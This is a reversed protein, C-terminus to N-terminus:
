WRMRGRRSPWAPADCAPPMPRMRSACCAAWCRCPLTGRADSFSKGPAGEAESLSLGAAFAGLTDASELLQRLADPDETFREQCTPATRSQRPCRASRADQAATLGATLTQGAAAQLARLDALEQLEAKLAEAEAQLAPTVEALIM